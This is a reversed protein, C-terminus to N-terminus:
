NTCERKVIHVICSLYIVTGGLTDKSEMSEPNYFNKRFNRDLLHADIGLERMFRRIDITHTRAVSILVLAVLANWLLFFLSYVFQFLFFSQCIELPIQVKQCPNMPTELSSGNKALNQVWTGNGTRVYGWLYKGLALNQVIVFLAITLFVIVAANMKMVTKSHLRVKELFKPHVFLRYALRHSYVGIGCYLTVMLVIVIGDLIDTPTHVSSIDYGSYFANTFVTGAASVVTCAHLVTSVVPKESPYLKIGLSKAITFWMWYPLRRSHKIQGKVTADDFNAGDSVVSERRFGDGDSADPVALDDGDGGGNANTLTPAAIATGDNMATM